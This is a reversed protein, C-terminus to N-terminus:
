IHAKIKRDILDQNVCVGMFVHDCVHTGRLWKDRSLMGDVEETSHREKESRSLGEKIISM